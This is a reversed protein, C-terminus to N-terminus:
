LVNTPEGSNVIKGICLVSRSELGEFELEEMLFSSIQYPEARIIFWRQHFRGIAGRKRVEVQVAWMNTPVTSM